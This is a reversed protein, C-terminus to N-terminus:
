LEARGSGRIVEQYEGLDCIVNVWWTGREPEIGPATAAHWYTWPNMRANEIDAAVVGGGPTIFWGEWQPEAPGGIMNLGDGRANKLNIRAIVRDGEEHHALDLDAEIHLPGGLETTVESPERYLEEAPGWFEWTADPRDPYRLEYAVFLGYLPGYTPSRRYTPVRVTDPPDHWTIPEIGRGTVALSVIEMPRGCGDSASLHVTHTPEDYPRLGIRRNPWDITLKALVGGVTTVERPRDAQFVREASLPDERLVRDGAEFSRMSIRGDGDYDLFHWEFAEGAFSGGHSEWWPREPLDHRQLDSWQWDDTFGSPACIAVAICALSVLLYRSM